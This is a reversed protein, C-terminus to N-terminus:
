TKSIIAWSTATVCQLTVWSYVGSILVGGAGDITDLLNPVISIKNPTAFGTHDGIYLVRGVLAASAAPLHVEIPNVQTDCAITYDTALVTYPSDAAVLTVVKHTVSGNVHLTAGPTTTNIGLNGGTFWSDSTSDLRVKQDNSSNHIQVYGGQSGSELQIVATSTDHGILNIGNGSGGAKVELTKAPTTTNVGLIGDVWSPGASDLRCKQDNSSNHVQVYGGQSGSELQVYATANDHAILNIGDGSGGAKVELTKAPTTTGIGLRETAKDYYVEAGEFAGGDNFQVQTDVGGPNGVVTGLLPAEGNFYVVGPNPVNVGTADETLVKGVVRTTTGPTDTLIGADTVYIASDAAFGTTTYNIVGSALALAKGNEPLDELLLLLPKTAVLPDTANIADVMLTFNNYGDKIPVLDVNVDVEAGKWQVLTPSSELSVVTGKSSTGVTSKSVSVIKKYGATQSVLSLFAESSRAWGENSDYENSENAAPISHGPVQPDQVELLCTFVESIQTNTNDVTLKVLYRGPVDPTFTQATSGLTWLGTDVGSSVPGFIEWSTPTYPDADFLGSFTVNQIVGCDKDKSAVAGNVFLTAM